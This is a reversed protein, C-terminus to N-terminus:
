INSFVIKNRGFAKAEYLAEDAKNIFMEVALNKQIETCVGISVTAKIVISDKIIFQYEEIVSRIREALKKAQERTGQSVLVFEEGGYRGFVDEKRIEKQVLQSIEILVIDGALHGYRDNIKKFYDIDFIMVVSAKTTVNNYVIKNQGRELLTRRNYIGTLSDISAFEELEKEARYLSINYLFLLVTLIVGFVATNAVRQFKISEESLEFAPKYTVVESIIVLLINAISFLIATTRERKNGYDFIVLASIALLFFFLNMRIEHPLCIFSLLYVFIMTASLTLIKGVYFKNIKYAIGIFLFCLTTMIDFIFMNWNKSLAHYPIFIAIAVLTAYHITLALTDKNKLVLIKNLQM